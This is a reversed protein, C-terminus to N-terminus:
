EEVRLYAEIAEELRPNQPVFLENYERKSAVKAEFSGDLVAEGVVPVRKTIIYSMENDVICRMLSKGYDSMKDFAKAIKMAEGSVENETGEAYEDNGILYDASVNLAQALKKIYPIDPQRKDKVWYNLQTPTAGVTIALQRQSVGAEEMCRTLRSGFTM